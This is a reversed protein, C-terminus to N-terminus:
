FWTLDGGTITFLIHRFLYYLFIYWGIGLLSTTEKLFILRYVIIVITFIVAGLM